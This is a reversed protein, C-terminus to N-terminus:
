ALYKWQTIWVDFPFEDDLLGILEGIQEVFQIPNVPAHLTRGLRGIRSKVVM